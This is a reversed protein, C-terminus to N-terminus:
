PRAITIVPSTWTETNTSDGLAKTVTLTARYQGNPVLYAKNGAVTVGDWTLVFAGTSTSNRITYNWEFAEHWSKGSNADTIDLELKRAQHDLHLVFYAVDDGTMTFTGGGALNGSLTSNALWPFGAGASTLVVKAQYDGIFGAYPVRYVQGGGQPTLVIYGGYIGLNPGTPPTITANFSASGGAPVTVSPASFAVSANSTSFGVSFENAGTSLAQVASLDYTVPDAGDNQVTVTQTSGGNQSEGLSLKPPDVKVSSLIAKDIQVMGAGQRHVNDLFGAGPNGFWPAPKATNQLIGAMAQSPTHPRAQLVLAAAGAVHPSAMSTGSLNAYGGLALPYTSRIFGGPAGIDPKLTLDPSLGYSSFSSILGGTPNPVSAVTDTWTM